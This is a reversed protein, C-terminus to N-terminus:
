RSQSFFLRSEADLAENRRKLMLKLFDDGMKKNRRLRKFLELGFEGDVALDIDEVLSYASTPDSDFFHLTNDRVKKPKALLEKQKENLTDYLLPRFDRVVSADAKKIAALNQRAAEVIRSREPLSNIEPFILLRDAGGSIEEFRDALVVLEQFESNEMVYPLLEVPKALYSYRETQESERVCANRLSAYEKPFWDPPATTWLERATTMKVDPYWEWIDGPSDGKVPRPPFSLLFEDLAIEHERLALFHMLNERLRLALRLLDGKTIEDAILRSELERLSDNEAKLQDFQGSPSIRKHRGRTGDPLSIEGRLSALMLREFFDSEAFNRRKSLTQQLSYMHQHFSKLRELAVAFEKAGADDFEAPEQNRTAVIRNAMDWYRLREIWSVPEPEPPKEPAATVPAAEVPESSQDSGPVYGITPPRASEEQAIPNEPNGEDTPKPEVFADAGEALTASKSAVDQSPSDPNVSVGNEDSESSCGILSALAILHITAVRKM